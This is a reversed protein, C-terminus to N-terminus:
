SRCYSVCITDCSLLRCHVFSGHIFDPCSSIFLALIFLTTLFNTFILLASYIWSGILQHLTTGFRTFIGSIMKVSKPVEFHILSCAYMNWSPRAKRAVSFEAGEEYCGTSCVLDHLKASRSSYFKIHQPSGSLSFGLVTFSGFPM